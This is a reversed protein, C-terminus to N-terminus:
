PRGGTVRRLRSPAVVTTARNHAQAYEPLAKVSQLHRKKFKRPLLEYAIKFLRKQSQKRVPIPRQGFHWISLDTKEGVGTAMEGYYKAELAAFLMRSLPTRHGVQRFNMIYLAGIQGTGIAWFGPSDRRLVSSSPTKVSVYGVGDLEFGIVLLQLNFRILDSTGIRANYASEVAQNVQRVTYHPAGLQERISDAIDFVASTDHGAYMLRWDSHIDIVKSIKPEAEIAGNSLKRDSVYVLSRRRDCLAAVCCTM